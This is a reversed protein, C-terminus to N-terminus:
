AGLRASLSSQDADALLLVMRSRNCLNMSVLAAPKPTLGQRSRYCQAALGIPLLWCARDRQRIV